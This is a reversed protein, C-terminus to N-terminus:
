ADLSVDPGFTVDVVDDVGEGAGVDRVSEPLQDQCRIARLVTRDAMRDFDVRGALRTSKKMRPAARFGRSRM